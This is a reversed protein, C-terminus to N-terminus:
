LTPVWPILRDNPGTSRKGGDRWVPLANKYWRPMLAPEANCAPALDPCYHMLEEVMIESVRMSGDHAESEPHETIIEDHEFVIPFHGYLPSPGNDYKSPRSNEHAITPVRITNDYCEETIRCLASKAADALLGQFFGNACASYELGGRVRGSVHQMIEGPALRRNPIVVGKLHPWLELHTDTILQGYECCENVYKFYRNNETWQDLWTSRLKLACDLCRKCTPSITRRNDKPGWENLMVEGCRPANDMLLCFRLGKYGRVSNGADDKVMHPGSPHPTDPGQVRQTIVMKLAGMGGPFGFNGPKAAQRADKCTQYLAHKPNNIIIEQFQEYPLGLMAAGLLNHVKIGDILANALQSEECIWLCSQAHTILEGAEYDVSSFVFGPHAELCERISPIWKKVPRRIKM